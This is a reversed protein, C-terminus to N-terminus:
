TVGLGIQNLLSGLDLNSLGLNGLGLADILNTLNLDVSM